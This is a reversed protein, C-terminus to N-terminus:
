PQAPERGRRPSELSLRSDAADEEAEGTPFAAGALRAVRRPRGRADVTAHRHHGTVRTRRVLRAQESEPLALEQFGCDARQGLQGVHEQDVGGAAVMRVPGAGPELEARHESKRGHPYRV